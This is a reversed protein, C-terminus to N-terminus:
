EDEAYEEEDDFEEGEGEDEETIEMIVGIEKRSNNNQDTGDQLQAAIMYDGSNRWNGIRTINGDTDTITRREFEKGTVGIADLFPVYRFQTKDTVPLFAMIFYGEYKTEEPRDDRPILELGIRLQPNKERTGAAYKLVNVNWHYVGNIPIPGDYPKYQSSRDFDDVDSSKVGWQARPM